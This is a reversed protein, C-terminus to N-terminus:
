FALSRMGEPTGPGSYVDFVEIAALRKGAAKRITEVLADHTTGLPVFFALDRSVSPFRAPLIVRSGREAGEILPELLAVFLHVEAEIEWPRLWGRSLSGAWGIRSGRWAVEASAGPKWGDGSYTRWGPTDVLMEELWAEWLGKADDFDLPQQA